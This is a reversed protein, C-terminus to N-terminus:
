AAAAALQERNHEKGQEDRTKSTKTVVATAFRLSVAIDLAELKDRKVPYDSGAPTFSDDLLRGTVTVAMGKSITNQANVALDRYAVATQFRTRSIWKNTNKDFYGNDVALDFSFITEGSRTNRTEHVKSVNGTLTIENM